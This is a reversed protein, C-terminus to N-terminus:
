GVVVIADDETLAFRTSRGPNLDVAGSEAVRIGLPTHGHSRVQRRIDEFTVTGSLGFREAPILRVDPGGGGLLEQIVDHLEQRLVVQALIHSVLRPTALVEAPYRRLLAIDDPDTLEVLVEPGEEAQELLDSLLLYSAITRADAEDRTSMWDSALLLIREFRTPDLRALFGPDTHDGHRHEVELRRLTVGDAEIDHLRDEENRTSVVEVRCGNSYRDLEELVAPAKRNWGLILVRSLAPPPVSVKTQIPTPEQGSLPGPATDSFDRALVVLQDSSRLILDPPPNLLVQDTAGLRVLGVAVGREIANGVEQWSAGELEHGERLYLSSGRGHTLMQQHVTSLGPTRISSALLRGVLGETAVLEVRGSYAGRASRITRHDYLEGVFTPEPQDLRRMMASLTLLVKITRADQSAVRGSSFDSGPVVVAAAHAADVRDLHEVRLASGSRLIINSPVFADGLEDRLEQVLHPGVREALVVLRLNRAGRLELWRRLRRESQLLEKILEPTRETWGLLVVHGRMRIPTLGLELRELTANLWQTMTAVLAGLFVVYGLVTLVTSVGRRLLGEDDGLYGPDSLRLFAWWVAEGLSAFDPEGSLVLAGGVVSLLGLVAAIFLLRYQAGRVLFRELLFTFRNRVRRPLEEPTM